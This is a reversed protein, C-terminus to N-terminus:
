DDGPIEEHHMEYANREIRETEMVQSLLNPNRMVAGYRTIIANLRGNLTGSESLVALADNGLHLSKKTAAGLGAAACKARFDPEMKDLGLRYYPGETDVAARSLLHTIKRAEEELPTGIARLYRENIGWTKFIASGDPTFTM